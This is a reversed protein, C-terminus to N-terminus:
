YLLLLVLLSVLARLLAPFFHIKFTLFPNKIPSEKKKPTATTATLDCLAVQQLAAWKVNRPASYGSDCRRSDSHIDLPCDRVQFDACRGANIDRISSPRENGRAGVKSNSPPRENGRAGVKSHEERISPPREAIVRPGRM